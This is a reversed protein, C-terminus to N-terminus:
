FYCLFAGSRKTPLMKKRELQRAIEWFLRKETSLFNEDVITWVYSGCADEMRVWERIMDRFKKEKAGPLTEPWQGQRYLEVCMRKYEYSYKM